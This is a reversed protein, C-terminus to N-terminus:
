SYTYFSASCAKTAMNEVFHLRFYGMKQRRKAKGHFKLGLLNM